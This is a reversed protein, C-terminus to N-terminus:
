TEIGTWCVLFQKGEKRVERKSWLYIHVLFPIKFWGMQFIVKNSRPRCFIMASALKKTPTM